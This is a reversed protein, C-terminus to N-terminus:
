NGYVYGRAGTALYVRGYVNEDGAIYNQMWGFQHANDNVRFWSAGGGDDSRFFGYQGGVTGIIFVTPHSQGSAAMGFGVATVSSASTIQTRTAGSSTFRFLGGGGAAVWVEGSKGFVPRPAGSGSFTNVASFSSGGNTSAYLTSGSTAYFTGSTVRDAALMAGSPLGSCTTWSTGNNTTYAPSGHGAYPSVLFRTGDASVAVSQMQNPGSYGPVAASAPHWTQGNDTSYGVDSAAAGSNGVRVVVNTNNEAFDIGNVNSHVPNTYQGTSSYADLNTNRMGGVDGEAGLFAGKVTPVLFLPVTEELGSDYFTWLVGQGSSGTASLINSSSWVGGGTGYM